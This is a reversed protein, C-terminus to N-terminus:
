PIEAIRYDASVFFRKFFNMKPTHPCGHRGCVGLIPEKEVKTFYSSGIRFIFLFRNKSTHPEAACM